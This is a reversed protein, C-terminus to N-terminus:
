LHSKIIEAVSEPKEFPVLHGAGDIQILEAKPMLSHIRNWNDDTIVDSYQARIITIECRQHALKPWLNPATAYVRAEWAKPYALTLGQETKKVGYKKFDEWVNRNWRQFIKKKGLHNELEEIDKWEDRRNTAIKVIPVMKKKLWFPIWKNWKVLKEPLIVPDIMIVRRFLDPRKLSALWAAVGGLSHGAVVMDGYGHDDMYSILDQALLNWHKMELPNSAEWLPRQVPMVVQLGNTIVQNVLYRYCGPPYANAHLFIMANEGEGIRVENM